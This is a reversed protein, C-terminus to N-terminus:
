HCVPLSIHMCIVVCARTRIVRIYMFVRLSITYTRICTNIQTGRGVRPRFSNKENKLPENRKYHNVTVLKVGSHDNERGDQSAVTIVLTGLMIRFTLKQM